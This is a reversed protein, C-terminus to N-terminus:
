VREAFVMNALQKQLVAGTRQYFERFENVNWHSVSVPRRYTVADASTLLPLLDACRFEANQGPSFLSWPSISVLNRHRIATSAVAARWRKRWTDRSAGAPMTRAPDTHRLSPVSGRLKALRSSTERLTRKAFRVDERLEELGCHSGPDIRRAKALEGIGGIEVALRRNFWADHRSVPLPRKCVDHLREGVEVCAVLARRLEEYRLAGSDDAYRALNIHLPVWASGAPVNMSIGPLIANGNEMSLLPCPSRVPAAVAMSVQAINRLRWLQLWRGHELTSDVLFGVPGQGLFRRRILLAAPPAISSAAVVLEVLRPDVVHEFLLGSLRACLSELLRENPGSADEFRVTLSAPQGDALADLLRNADTGSFGQASVLMTEGHAAANGGHVRLTPSVGLLRLQRTLKTARAEPM